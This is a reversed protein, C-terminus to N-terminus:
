TSPATQARRTRWHEEVIPTGALVLYSGLFLAADRLPLAERLRIQPGVPQILDPWHVIALLAVAVLPLVDMIGHAHQELPSIYRRKETYRVDLYSLVLHLVALAFLTGLVPRTTDFLLAGALLLAMVAFQLVHFASEGVGSTQEIRSRRHCLYDVAGAALWVPYLVYALLRVLLASADMASM